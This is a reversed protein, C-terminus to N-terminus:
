QNEELSRAVLVLSEWTKEVLTELYVTTMDLFFIWIVNEQIERSEGHYLEHGLCELWKVQICILVYVM